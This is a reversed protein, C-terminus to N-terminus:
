TGDTKDMHSCKIAFKNTDRDWKQLLAGGSGFVFNESAYGNEAAVDLITSIMKRDIGDGQIIRVHDDLVKYGKDNIKGGFKDWMIELLQMNVSVPDGSDPRVVLRGDRNMVKDKLVGGWINEVANFIDYSDSVCSIIGTPYIDLL